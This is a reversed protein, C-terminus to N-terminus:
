QTIFGIGKDINCSKRKAYGNAQDYKL